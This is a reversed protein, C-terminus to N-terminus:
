AFHPFFREWQTARFADPPLYFAMRFSEGVIYARAALYLILICCGIMATFKKALFGVFFLFFEWAETDFVRVGFVSPGKSMHVNDPPSSQTSQTNSIAATTSPSAECSTARDCRSKLRKVLDRTFSVCILIIVVVLAAGAPSVIIVSSVRWLIRQRRSPFQTNWALAHLAGYAAALMCFGLVAWLLKFDPMSLEDIKDDLHESTNTVPKISILGQDENPKELKYTELAEHALRWRRVDLPTLHFVAPDQRTTTYSVPNRLDDGSVRETYTESVRWRASTEKVAFNTGALKIYPTVTMTPLIHHNAITTLKTKTISVAEFEPATSVGFTMEGESPLQPRASLKSAMWMYALLPRMSPSAILLPREIDLPKNWWLFYVIITCIAHAFTNLELLSLPLRQAVRVFCSICFWTAQLCAISKTLWDGKSKDKVEGEAVDPLLEPVTNVLFLVGKETLKLPVDSPIFPEPGGGDAGIGGMVAWFSHTMTWKHKLSPLQAERDDERPILWLRGRRFMCSVTEKARTVFVEQVQKQVRKAATRQTWAVSIMVEPALLSCIIWGARRELVERWSEPNAPLNLHVASWVGLLLTITCTSLISFSGRLDSDSQWTITKNSTAQNFLHAM